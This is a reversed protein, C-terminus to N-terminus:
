KHMSAQVAKTIYEIMAKDPVAGYQRATHFHKDYIENLKEHIASDGGTFMRLLEEWRKALAQVAPHAPDTGKAMEAAVQRLLDPWETEGLRATGAVSAPDSARIRMMQEATFHSELPALERHLLVCSCCCECTTCSAAMVKSVSEGPNLLIEDLFDSIELDDIELGALDLDDTNSDDCALEPAVISKRSDM